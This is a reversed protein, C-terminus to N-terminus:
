LVIAFSDRLHFDAQAGPHVFAWYTENGDATQIITTIGIQLNQVPRIIPNLDVSVDLSLKDNLKRLEFPLQTFASEERMNVQRYADMAYVNWDGSPSMNFEWYQPQDQVAIFFEFCTAKWLDHQRSSTTPTPLLINEIEGHVSYCISLLHDQRTVTGKIEITPINSAPYPTLSFIPM